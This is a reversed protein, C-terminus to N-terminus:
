EGGRVIFKCNKNENQIYNEWVCFIIERERERETKKKKKKM